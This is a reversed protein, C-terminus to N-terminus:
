RKFQAKLLTWIRKLIHGEPTYIVTTGALKDHWSRKKADFSGMWCGVLFIPMSAYFGVYRWIYQRLTPYGEGDKDALRIGMLWKGPTTDFRWWVFLANVQQEIYAQQNQDYWAASQRAQKLPEVSIFSYIMGSIMTFLQQFLMFLVFGDLMSAFLRDQITAYHRPEKAPRKFKAKEALTDMLGQLKTEFSPKTPESM